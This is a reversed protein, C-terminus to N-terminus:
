KQLCFINKNDIADFHLYLISDQKITFCKLAKIGRYFQVDRENLKNDFCYILTPLFVSDTSIHNVLSLNYKGFIHNCAGARITGSKMSFSYHFPETEFNEVANMNVGDTTFAWYKFFWNNQQLIATDAIGTNLMNECITGETQLVVNNEKKCSNTILVSFILYLSINKKM